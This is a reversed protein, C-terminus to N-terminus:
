TTGGIKTGPQTRELDEIMSEASERDLVRDFFEELNNNLRDLQEAVARTAIVKARDRDARDDLDGTENMWDIM